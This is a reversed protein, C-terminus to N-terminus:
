LNANIADVFAFMQDARHKGTKDLYKIKEGNKLIIEIYSSLKPHKSKLAIAIDSMAFTDVTVPMKSSKAENKADVIEAVLVGIAGGMFLASTYADGVASRGSHIFEVRDNYVNLVGIPRKGKFMTLGDLSMILTGSEQAAQEKKLNVRNGCSDCFVTDSKIPNGCNSCFRAQEQKEAKEGCQSCFVSDERLINGCKCVM